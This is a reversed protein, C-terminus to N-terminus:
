QLMVKDTFVQEGQTIQVTILGKPARGVDFAQDYYGDFNSRKDTAIVKGDIDILQITVAKLDSQFRLHLQGNTPNPSLIYNVLELSAKPKSATEKPALVFKVPISFDVNVAKGDLKGPIWNEEMDNMLHVVRMVEDDISPYVSKTIRINELKGMKNVVFSAVATGEVNAKSADKPYKINEYIFQLLAKDVCSKLEKASTENECGPFRPMEDVVKYSAVKEEDTLKFQFPLKLQSALAKGDKQAPKWRPLDNVVALAAEDMGYGVSKLVTADEVWGEANITFEVIVTGEKGEAKAAEPYKLKEIIFSILKEKSCAQQKQLTELQECGAFIPLPDGGTELSEVMPSYNSSETPRAFAFALLVALPLVLLYRVRVSQRTKTKTMMIIRQKLQSTYFHNVLALPPGSVAQRMLLLGYQKKKINANLVAEDALYEHVSRVSKSYFYIPLCPWFPIKLLELLLIDISHRGKIHAAEHLMIKEQEQETYNLRASWFLYNLFSFPAHIENTILLSYHPSAQREAFQYLHHIRKLALIFQVSMWFVGITYIVILITNWNIMTNVETPPTVVAEIQAVGSTIPYLYQAATNPTTEYLNLTGAWPLILGLVLSMLLYVRNITFFTAKRLLSAYLAYFILWCLSTQLFYTIM